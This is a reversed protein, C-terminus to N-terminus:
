RELVTIGCVAEDLGIMGGANQALGLHPAGAQREGAEGRLQRVLEDIMGLGTAALPHGRAILGGSTNVPRAGDRQTAGSAVYAGGEGRGCFGLAEMAALECWANADHVEAIDIQEPRVGAARYAREATVETVDPEGLGRWTGGGLTCGRVRVARERVEAPLTRLLAESVVHVAAAGDSIPACMSRTLPEIVARDALVSEVTAGFRYQALPNLRGNEHNKAAIIALHEATTGHARMHARASLAHVDLFLIRAPVPAFGDGAAAAAERYFAKWEDRHLMDIGGMFLAFSKAPDDPVWTKEVGIALASDAQGALVASVAGHLAASGTACAAEVNVIPTHGDLLGERVAPQLAVQGRINSQGFVNMACNGFWVGDVPRREPLVARVVELALDRHTRDPWKQFPTSATELIWAGAM